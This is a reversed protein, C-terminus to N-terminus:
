ADGSKRLAMEELENKAELAWELAGITQLFPNYHWGVSIVALGEIVNCVHEWYEDTTENVVTGAHEM